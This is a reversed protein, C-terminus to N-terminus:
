KGCTYIDFIRQENTTEEVIDKTDDEITTITVETEAETKVQARLKRDLELRRKYEDIRHHVGAMGSMIHQM